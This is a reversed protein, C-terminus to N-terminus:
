PVRQVEFPVSTLLYAGKRTPPQHLRDYYGFALRGPTSFHPQLNVAYCASLYDIDCGPLPFRVPASWPGQPSAAVRVDGAGVYGPWPTYLMVFAAGDPTRSVSFQGSPVPPEPRPSVPPPLVLAEPAAGATWTEGDWAEYRSADAVGDPRVRQVDCRGPDPTPQGPRLNAWGSLEGPACTYTYVDPGDVVAAGIVRDALLVENLMTVKIPADVPPEGPTYRWEAVSTGRSVVAGGSGLCINAMWLLVRNADEPDVVAATPWMGAYPAEPPCAPFAASPDAFTQVRDGVVPDQTVTPEGPASWAASGIVFFRTGGRPDREATDGFFWITSGDSLPASIGADRDLGPLPHGPPPLVGVPPEVPGTVVPVLSGSPGPVTLPATADPAAPVTTSSDVEADQPAPVPEATESVPSTPTASTSDSCGVVAALLVTVALPTLARRVGIPRLAPVTM